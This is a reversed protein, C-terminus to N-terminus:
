EEVGDVQSEVEDWGILEAFGFKTPEVADCLEYRYSPVSIWADDTNKGMEPQDSRTVKGCRRCRYIGYFQKKSM